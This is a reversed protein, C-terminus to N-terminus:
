KVLIRYLWKGLVKALSSESGDMGVVLSLWALVVETLTLAFEALSAGEVMRLFLPSHENVWEWIEWLADIKRWHWLLHLLVLVLGVSAVVVSTVLIFAGIRRL